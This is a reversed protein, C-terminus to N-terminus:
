RGLLHFARGLGFGTLTSAVAGLGGEHAAASLDVHLWPRKDVFRKLFLAAPIHDAEGDMACQKVDVVKSDLAAAYDQDM